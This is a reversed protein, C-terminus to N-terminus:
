ASGVGPVTREDKAEDGNLVPQSEAHSPGEPEFSAAAAGTPLARTAARPATSHTTPSPRSRILPRLKSATVRRRRSGQDVQDLLARSYVVAACHCVAGCAPCEYRKAESDNTWYNDISMVPGFGSHKLVGVFQSGSPPDWAFALMATAGETACWKLGAETLQTAVGRGRYSSAVAISRLLGVSHNCWLLRLRETVEEQGIPLFRCISEKGVLYYTVAGLLRSERDVAVLCTSGSDATIAEQVTALDVYCEGLAEGLLSVVRQAEDPRAPRVTADPSRYFKYSGSVVVRNASDYGAWLGLMDGVSGERQLFFTGTSSDYPDVARYRGGLYGGRDVRGNLIWSRGEQINTDNGKVDRGKWGLECLGKKTVRRGEVLDEYETVFRGGLPYKHRLRRNTVARICWGSTAGVIAAALPVALAAVTGDM